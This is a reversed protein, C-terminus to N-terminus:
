KEIELESHLYKIFDKNKWSTAVFDIKNELLLQEYGEQWEYPNNNYRFLVKTKCNCTLHPELRDDILIDGVCVSKDFNKKNQELLVINEEKIMPLNKLIWKKKLELNRPTGYSCIKLTCYNYLNNLTEYVGEFLDLSNFFYETNFLEHIIDKNGNPFSQRLNWSMDYYTLPKESTLHEYTLIMSKTTDVLTTDFDLWVIKNNM